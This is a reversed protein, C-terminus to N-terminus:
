KDKKGFLNHIIGGFNIHFGGKGPHITPPTSTPHGPQDDADNDNGGKEGKVAPQLTCNVGIFKGGGKGELNYKGGNIIGNSCPAPTVAIPFASITATTAAVVLPSNASTQIAAAPFSVTVADAPIIGSWTGSTAISVYFKGSAPTTTAPTISTTSGINVSSNSGVLNGAIPNFSNSGDDKYLSVAALDGSSITTSANAKDVEVNVGSLTEGANASVSFSFVATQSSSAAVIAPSTVLSVPGTVVNVAAHAQLFVLGLSAAITAAGTIVSLVKKNM